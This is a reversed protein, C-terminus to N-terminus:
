NVKNTVLVLLLICFVINLKFFLEVILYIKAKSALLVTFPICIIINM